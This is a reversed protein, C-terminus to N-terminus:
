RVGTYPVSTGNSDNFSGTIKNGAITGVNRSRYTAGETITFAYRNGTQPCGIIHYLSSATVGACAGTARNESRFTIGLYGGSINWKGVFNTKAAAFAPQSAVVLSIPLAPALTAISTLM